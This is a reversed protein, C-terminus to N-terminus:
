NLSPDVFGSLVKYGLGELEFRRHVTKTDHAAETVGNVFDWLTVAGEDRGSRRSEALAYGSVREELTPSGGNTSSGIYARVARIGDIDLFQQSAARMMPVLTKGRQASRVIARQVNYAVDGRHVIRDSHVKDRATMGNTCVLRENYDYIHVASDGNHATQISTGVHVIDGVEQQAEFPRSKDIFNMRATPGELWANSLTLDAESSLAFDLVDANALSEYDRTTIGDVRGSQGDIVLIKDEGRHFTTRIRDAFLDLTLEENERALQKAFSVPIRCFHCLDSFAAKSLRLSETGSGSMRGDLTIDSLWDASIRHTNDRQAHVAKSFDEINRYREAVPSDLVFGRERVATRHNQLKKKLSM